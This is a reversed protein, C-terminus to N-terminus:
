QSRMGEQAATLSAVQAPNARKLRRDSRGELLAKIDDVIMDGILHRGGAVAAARHPSLIVNSTMRLADTKVVPEKPFVDTAVSIRGSNAAEILADFDVCWARSILVVQAGKQLRSILDANLLNRTEKSPVAAVIVVQCTEVLTELDVLNVGDSATQLFPDFAFVEPSFPGMLRATERAIEGFGIFGIKAGFLTFDQGRCDDLWREHGQRFAEHERVLGRGGALIMALTMEAVSQRFGPSSSLVEVRRAFCAEYDLGVDFAGAVEIIAELNPANEIQQASLQPHAAVYFRAKNILADVQDRPMPWNRGGHVDCLDCLAEFAEPRFLEELQRFHQDMILLPKDSM